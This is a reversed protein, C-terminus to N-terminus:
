TLLFFSLKLQLISTESSDSSSKSVPPPKIKALFNRSWPSSKKIIFASIRVSMLILLKTSYWLFILSSSCILLGEFLSYPLHNRHCLRGVLWVSQVISSLMPIPLLLKTALPGLGIGVPTLYIVSLCILQTTLLSSCQVISDIIKMNPIYSPSSLTLTQM